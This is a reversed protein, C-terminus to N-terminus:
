NWAPWKISVDVLEPMRDCARDAPAGPNLVASRAKQDVDSLTVGSTLMRLTFRNRIYITVSSISNEGSAQDAFDIDDVIGSFVVEAAGVPQDLDDCEQVYLTFMSGIVDGDDTEKWAINSIDTPIGSLTLPLTYAEANIASEIQDIVGDALITQRWIHGDDDMYPGSGDWFRITQSPFDMKALIRLSYNM